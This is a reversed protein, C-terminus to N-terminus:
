PAVVEEATYIVLAFDQDTGDGSFPVGDGPLDFAKVQVTYAGGGPTALFVNELNNKTDAFGDPVSVGGVFRNGM